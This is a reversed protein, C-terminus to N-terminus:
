LHAQAEKGEQTDLSADEPKVGHLSSLMSSPLPGGLCPTLEGDGIAAPGYHVFVTHGTSGASGSSQAGVNPHKACAQTHASLPWPPLLHLITGPMEM